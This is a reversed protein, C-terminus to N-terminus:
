TGSGADMMNSPAPKAFGKYITKSIAERDIALLLAKRVDINTVPSTSGEVYNDLMMCYGLGTNPVEVISIKDSKLSDATNATIGYAIDLDGTRMGAVRSSEDPVIAYVLNKWNPKRAADFYDDFRTYKVNANLEQSVFM